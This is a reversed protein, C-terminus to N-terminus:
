DDAFGALTAWDDETQVGYFFHDDGELDLWLTWLNGAREPRLSPITLGSIRVAGRASGLRTRLREVEALSQKWISERRADFRRFAAVQAETPGQEDADVILEVGEFGWLAFRPNTWGDTRQWALWGFVPHEVELGAAGGFLRQLIGM